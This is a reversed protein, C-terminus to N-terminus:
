PGLSISTGSISISGMPTLTIKASGCKIELNTTGEISMSTGGKITVGQSGDITMDGSPKLSMADQSKQEVKGQTEVTLDKDSKITIVDKAHMVIKQDSQLSFSGDQSQTLDDGPKATGNWLSGLVYPQHVDDHEFGIVVEDGVQPVMLLGRSQGANPAAVRAWPSEADDGLAPYKVRVRGLKDPDNNNTVHGLVVSNGWGRKGKPTMMDVLSRASRGATSFITRYGHTGQFVHTCSSVVYTGGFSTGIGDIKVKSGAKMAPNGKAVGEAEVYGAAVHAKYAKALDQAEQQSTVPRDAIVLTGGKTAQAADSRKIGIDTAPQELSETAEFPQNRTIDRARVTVQDVQQVGSVRPRFSILTGDGWKLNIDQTGAPPGAKRFYLKHDLVLVEFDIRQALKWLFEWDTENNQQVFDFAPGASDITGEDIGARQGVKRAIDAATMNQYTDARKTQNLSHSGDYARFGLTTGHEFEPELSVVTGKFVSSLSNGDIASLSVEINSGFKIPFQDINKLGPDTFKLLCADPLRLNMAIRAEILTQGIQDDLKTGDVKVEAGSVGGAV